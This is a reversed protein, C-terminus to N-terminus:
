VNVLAEKDMSTNSDPDEQRLLSQLCSRMDEPTLRGAATKAAFEQSIRGVPQLHRPNKAKPNNKGRGYGDVLLVREPEYGYVLYYRGKDRGAKSCVLQGVAFQTQILPKKAAKFM